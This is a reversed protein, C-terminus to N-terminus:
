CFGVQVVQHLLRELLNGEQREAIEDVFPAPTNKFARRGAFCVVSIPPLEPLSATRQTALSHKFSIISENMENMWENM